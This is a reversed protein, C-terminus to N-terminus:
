WCVLKYLVKPSRTAKLHRLCFHLANSFQTLRSFVILSRFHFLHHSFYTRPRALTVQNIDALPQGDSGESVLMQAFQAANEPHTRIIQRMQFLYDPEFNVKKAYLIIKDFQGLEAFCQVVKHPVNGRLYVSLAINIDFPKILDGLEESYDLKGESIWKEILQKRSKFINM